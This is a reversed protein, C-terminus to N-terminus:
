ILKPRQPMCLNYFASDKFIDAGKWSVWGKSQIISLDDRGEYHPDLILFKTKGTRNNRAVGLLTWALVGGGIMIPSGQDDFHQALERGKNIMESGRSIHLIKSEVGTLKELVYCVENAGIWERSGIFSPPKDGIHVLARQIEAHTPLAGNEFETYHENVCWSLLTQLSRYACGWGADNFKDQLYHCYLYSGSITHTSVASDGGGFSPDKLGIHVDALRGPFGGDFLTSSGSVFLRCVSRFRPRDAPLALATHIAKRSVVANPSDEAARDTFAPSVVTVALSAGLVDFHQAIACTGNTSASLVAPAVRRVSVALTDRIEQSTATPKVYAIADLPVTVRRAVSCFYPGERGNNAVRYTRIDHAHTPDSKGLFKDLPADDMLMIGNVTILVDKDFYSLADNAACEPRLTVTACIRLPIAPHLTGREAEIIQEVTLGASDVWDIGGPLLLQSPPTDTTCIGVIVNDHVAVLHIPTSPDLRSLELCTDDSLCIPKKTM